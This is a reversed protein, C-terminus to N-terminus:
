PLPEEDRTPNEDTVHNPYRRRKHCVVEEPRARADTWRVQPVRVPRGNHQRMGGRLLPAPDCNKGGHFLEYHVHPGRSIGTSGVEAIVSGTKVRQGAVVFNVSNHAYMTVWGGPHIIMVMNGYGHVENGAYAVIGPASARVNWGLRGAVDIAQHYSGLGSGYGRVFWGGPVPWMLTGPPRSGGAARIWAPMVKGQLLESAVARTGLRLRRAVAVADGVGPARDRPPTRPSTAGVVGVGPIYLRGGVRLSLAGQETLSNAAMIEGVSAGYLEAITWISDGSSITHHTGTARTVKAVARGGPIILPSGPGLRRAHDDDLNNRDLLDALGLDYARAVDWVTEGPELAHVRENRGPPTTPARAPLPPREVGGVIRLRQGIRLIPNTAPTLANGDIISRTTVQYREALDYVTDGAVVEHVLGAELPAPSESASSPKPREDHHDSAGNASSEDESPTDCRATLVVAFLLLVLQKM